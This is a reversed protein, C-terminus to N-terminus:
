SWIAPKALFHAPAFDGSVTIGFYAARPLTALSNVLENPEMLDWVYGMCGMLVFGNADFGLRAVRSAAAM